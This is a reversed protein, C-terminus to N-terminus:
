LHKIPSSMGVDNVSSKGGLEKFNHDAALLTDLTDLTELTELTEPTEPTEPTELTELTEPM